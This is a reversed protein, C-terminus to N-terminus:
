NFKQIMSRNRKKTKTVEKPSLHELKKNGPGQAKNIIM